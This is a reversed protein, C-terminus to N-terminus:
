LRAAIWAVSALLLVFPLTGLVRDLASLSGFRRISYGLLYVALLAAVVLFAVGTTAASTSAQFGTGSSLLRPLVWPAALAVCSISCLIRIRRSRYGSM